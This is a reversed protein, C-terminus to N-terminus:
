PAITANFISNRLPIVAEYTRYRWGNLMVAPPAIGEPVQIRNQCALATNAACNFLFTPTPRPAVLAANPPNSLDPEDSRVVIGIRVAVIRNPTNSAVAGAAPMADGNPQAFAPDGAKAITDPSWDGCTSADAPTWCDVAGDLSQDTVKRPSTDIGYQVKMWVVNQAIPNAAVGACGTPALCDTTRLQYTPPGAPDDDVSYRIRQATPGLNLLLSPTGTSNLAV